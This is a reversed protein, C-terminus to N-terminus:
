FFLDDRTRYIPIKIPHGKSTTSPSIDIAPLLILLLSSSLVLFSMIWVDELDLLRGSSLALLECATGHRWGTFCETSSASEVAAIELHPSTETGGCGARSHGADSGVGVGASGVVM